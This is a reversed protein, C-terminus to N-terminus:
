QNGKGKRRVWCCSPQFNFLKKISHTRRPLDLFFFCTPDSHVGPQAPRKLKRLRGQKMHHERNGTCVPWRKRQQTKINKHQRRVPRSALTASRSASGQGGM